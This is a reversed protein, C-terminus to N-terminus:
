NLNLALASIKSYNVISPFNILKMGKDAEDKSIATLLNIIEEIIEKWSFFVVMFKM